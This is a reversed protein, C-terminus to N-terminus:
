RLRTSEHLGGTGSAVRRLLGSFGRTKQRPNNLRVFFGTPISRKYGDVARRAKAGHSRFTGIEHIVCQMFGRASSSSHSCLVGESNAAGVRETVVFM